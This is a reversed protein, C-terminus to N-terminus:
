PNGHSSPSELAPRVWANGSMLGRWLLRYASGDWVLNDVVNIGPGTWDLDLTMSSSLAEAEHLPRLVEAAM